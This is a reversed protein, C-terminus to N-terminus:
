DFTALSIPLVVMLIAVFSLGPFSQSTTTGSNECTAKFSGDGYGIDSFEHCEDVSGYVHYYGVSTYETCASDTYFYLNFTNDNCTAKEYQGSDSDYMCQNLNYTGSDVSSSCYDDSYRYLTISGSDYNSSSTSPSPSSYYDCDEGYSTFCTCASSSSYMYNSGGCHSKCADDDDSVGIDSCKVEQVSRRKLSSAPELALAATSENKLQVPFNVKKSGFFLSTTKVESSSNRESKQFAEPSRTKFFMSSGKLKNLLPEAEEAKKADKTAKGIVACDGRPVQLITMLAVMTASVLIRVSCESVVKM